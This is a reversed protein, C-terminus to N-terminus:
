LICTSQSANVCERIQEGIALFENLECPKVIYCDAQPAQEQMVRKPSSSLMVVPIEWLGPTRRICALLESGDRKPVNLDLIAVDPIPKGGRGAEAEVYRLASEGDEFVLPTFDIKAKHLAEKLLYVDARNDEVIMVTLRHHFGM